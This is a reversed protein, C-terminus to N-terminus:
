RGVVLTRRAVGTNPRERDVALVELEFTGEAEPVLAGDYTSPEGAYALPTEAHVRGDRLLRAVIQIRNADWLGGPETPCGCLLNVRARVPVRAGPAAAAADGPELIEVTFGHLELVIGDGTVHRGPVLWLTKSARQLADPYGLPGEATVEVRTPRELPITAEFAATGPTDYVRAGRVRPEVVIRRTDGTGGQQVGEALVAGTAADRITIRAGGVATGIAKADHSVARVVIRTPVPQAAGAPAPAGLVCVAVACTVFRPM